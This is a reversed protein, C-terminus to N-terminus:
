EVNRHLPYSSLILLLSTPQSLAVSWALHPTRPDRSIEQLQRLTTRDLLCGWLRWESLPIIKNKYMRQIKMLKEAKAQGTLFFTDTGWAYDMLM